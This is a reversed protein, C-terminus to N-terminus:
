SLWSAASLRAVGPHIGNRCLGLAHSRWIPQVWQKWHHCHGQPNLSYRDEDVSEYQSVFHHDQVCCHPSSRGLSYRRKARQLGLNSISEIDFTWYRNRCHPDAALRALDFERSVTLYTMRRSNSKERSIKAKIKM